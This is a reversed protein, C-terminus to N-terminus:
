TVSPSTFAESRLSSETSVTVSSRAATSSCIRRSRPRALFRDFFFSVALFADALFAAALLAGALFAAALFAAALFSPALFTPALFTPALFFDAAFFAAASTSSGGKQARSVAFRGLGHSSRRPVPFTWGGRGLGYWAPM